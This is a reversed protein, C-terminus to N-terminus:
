WRRTPFKSCPPASSASCGWWCRTPSRGPSFAASPATPWRGWGCRATWGGGRFSPTSSGSASPAFGEKNYLLYVSAVLALLAKVLFGGVSMSWGVLKPLAAQLFAIAKDWIGEWSQLVGAIRDPGIGYDALVRQLFASGQAILGGSQAILSRISAVLQPILLAVLAAILGLFLLYVIGVAAIRRARPSKVGCLWRREIWGLPKALLYAIGFAALFPALLGLTAGAARSIEGFHSFFAYLLVGALVILLNPLAKRVM